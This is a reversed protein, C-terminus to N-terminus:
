SRSVSDVVPRTGHLRKRREEENKVVQQITEAKVRGLEIWKPREFSYQAFDPKMETAQSIQWEKGNVLGYQIIRKSGPLNDTEKLYQIELLVPKLGELAQEVVNPDRTKALLWVETEEYSFKIEIRSDKTSIRKSVTERAKKRFKNWLESGIKAIFLGLAADTMKGLVFSIIPSPDITEEATTAVLVKQELIESLSSALQNKEEESFAKSAAIHPRSTEM